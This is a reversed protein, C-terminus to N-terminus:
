SRNKQQCIKEKGDHIHIEIQKKKEQTQQNFGVCCSPHSVLRLLSLSLFRFRFFTDYVTHITYPKFIYRM